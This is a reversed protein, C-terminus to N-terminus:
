SAASTLRCSMSVAVGAAASVAGVACACSSSQSKMAPQSPKWPTLRALMRAPM